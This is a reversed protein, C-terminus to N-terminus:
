KGFLSALGTITTIVLAAAGCALLTWAIIGMGRATDPDSYPNRGRMLAAQRAQWGSRGKVSKRSPRMRIVFKHMGMPM